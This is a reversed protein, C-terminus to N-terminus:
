LGVAKCAASFAAVATLFATGNDATSAALMAQANEAIGPDLSVSATDNVEQLKGRLETTTLIGASVDSMVNRFHTCSLDASPDATPKAPAVPAVKAPKPVPKAAAAKAAPTSAVAPATTASVATTVTPPPSSLSGAIIMLAVAALPLIFRKKKFWPRVPKSIPTPTEVTPTTSM